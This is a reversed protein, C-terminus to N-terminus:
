NKAANRAQRRTALLSVSITIALVVIIV